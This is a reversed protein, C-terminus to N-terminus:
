KKALKCTLLMPKPLLCVQAPIQTRCNGLETDKCMFYLGEVDLKKM